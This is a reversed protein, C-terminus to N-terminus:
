PARQGRSGTGRGARGTFVPLVATASAPPTRRKKRRTTSTPFTPGGGGGGGLRQGLGAGISSAFPSMLLKYAVWLGAAIMAIGGVSGFFSGQNAVYQRIDATQFGVLAAENMKKEDPTMYKSERVAKLPGAYLEEPSRGNTWREIADKAMGAITLTTYTALIAKGGPTKAAGIIWNGVTKVFGGAWKIGTWSGRAATLWWQGLGHLGEKGPEAANALNDMNAMFSNKISAYWNRISDNLNGSEVTM